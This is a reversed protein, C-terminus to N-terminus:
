KLVGLIEPTIYIMTIIIGLFLIGSIGCFLGLQFGRNWGMEIQRNVEKMEDHEVKRLKPIDIEDYYWDPMKAKIERVFAPDKKKSVRESMAEVIEEPSPKKTSKKKM